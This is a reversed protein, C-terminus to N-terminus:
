GWLVRRRPYNVEDRHWEHILRLQPFVPYCLAHGDIESLSSAAPELGALGVVAAQAASIGEATEGNPTARQAARECLPARVCRQSVLTDHTSRGPGASAPLPSRPRHRPRAPHGPHPRGGPAQRLHGLRLDIPRETGMAKAAEAIPRGVGVPDLVMQSSQRPPYGRSRISHETAAHPIGVFAPEGFPRVIM